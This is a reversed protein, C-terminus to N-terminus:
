EGVNYPLQLITVEEGKAAGSGGPPIRMLCNADTINTVVGSKDRGVPYVVVRGDEIAWSSRVFRAFPSPKKMDVGLVAKMEPLHVEPKGQMAALLPRVFLEFGVFCAGPNGSLGFIFQDNYRAVSTVSGPRMAIKNFLLQADLRNFVEVMIDFDGVSVGGSTILMDTEELIMLIREVAKDPDDELNGYLIPVGGAQRVQSATMYSNSNRIKGYRLPEEPMLLESGTALIGIRPLRYVPVEAYGFTALIAMEGPGIRKGAEILLDGAKKEEGLQIINEGPEMEKKVGVYREVREENETTMEFMIVCDAGQPIAAGTMIRAAQGAEVTFAPEDGCAIAGVVELEVPMAPTAGSTDEARVAFGDYPSKPFHPVDNTAQIPEALRRGESELLPVREVPNKEAYALVRERAEEVQIPERHFRM